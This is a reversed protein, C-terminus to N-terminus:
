RGFKGLEKFTEGGLMVGVKEVSNGCAVASLKAHVDATRRLINARIEACNMRTRMITQTSGTVRM